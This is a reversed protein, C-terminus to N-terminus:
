QRLIEPRYCSLRFPQTEAPPQRASLLRGSVCLPLSSPRSLLPSIPSVLPYFVSRPSFSLSFTFRGNPFIRLRQRAKKAREKRESGATYAGSAHPAPSFSPARVAPFPPPPQSSETECPLWMPTKGIIELRRQIRRKDARLQYSNGILSCCKGIYPQYTTLVVVSFPNVHIITAPSPM